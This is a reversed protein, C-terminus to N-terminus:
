IVFEVWRLSTKDNCLALRPRYCKEVIYPLPIQVSRMAMGKAAGSCANLHCVCLARHIIGLAGQGVSVGSGQVGWRYRSMKKQGKEDFVIM